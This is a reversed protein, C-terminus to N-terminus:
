WVNEAMTGQRGKNIKMSTKLTLFYCTNCLQFNTNFIRMKHKEGWTHKSFLPPIFLPVQFGCSESNGREWGLWVNVQIKLSKFNNKTICGMFNPWSVSVYAEAKKSIYNAANFNGQHGLIVEHQISIKGSKTKM